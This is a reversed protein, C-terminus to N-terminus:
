YRSLGDLRRGPDVGPVGQSRLRSAQPAAQRQGRDAVVPQIRGRTDRGATAQTSKCGRIASSRITARSLLPVPTFCSRWRTALHKVVSLDHFLYIHCGSSSRSTSCLNSSGPRSHLMSGAGTRRTGPDQQAGTGARHRHAAESRRLVRHSLSVADGACDVISCSPSGRTLRTRLASGM